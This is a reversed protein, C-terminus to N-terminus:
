VFQEHWEEVALNHIREWDKKSLQIEEQTAADIVEIFNVQFHEPTDRDGRCHIIEVVALVNENEEAWTTIRHETVMCPLYRM